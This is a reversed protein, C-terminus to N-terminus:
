YNKPRYNNKKIKNKVANMLDNVNIPKTLYDEAGLNMGFRIDTKKGKASLFILPISMKKKDKQLKKFMEFGDLEPMLIDLLILDPKEKLAM